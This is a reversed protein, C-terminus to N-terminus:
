RVPSNIKNLVPLVGQIELHQNLWTREIRFMEKEECTLYYFWFAKGNPTPNRKEKTERHDFFRRNLDDTLGVYLIEGDFSTLVYCGASRPVFKRCRLSFELRKEVAPILQQIKM